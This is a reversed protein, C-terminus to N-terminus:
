YTIARETLSRENVYVAHEFVFLTGHSRQGYSAVDHPLFLNSQKIAFHVLYLM